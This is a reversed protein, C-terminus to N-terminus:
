GESERGWADRERLGVGWGRRALCAQKGPGRMCKEGQGRNLFHSCAASRRACIACPSYMVRPTLEEPGVACGTPSSTVTITTSKFGDSIGHGAEEAHQVSRQICPPFTPPPRLRRHTPKPM